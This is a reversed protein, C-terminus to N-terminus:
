IKEAADAAATFKDAYATEAAIIDKRIIDFKDSFKRDLADDSLYRLVCIGSGGCILLLVAICIVAAWIKDCAFLGIAPFLLLVISGFVINAIGIKADEYKSATKSYENDTTKYNDLLSATTEDAREIVDSLLIDTNALYVKNDASNIVVTIDTNEDVTDFEIRTILSNDDTLEAIYDIVRHLYAITGTKILKSDNTIVDKTFVIPIDPTDSTNVVHYGLPSFADDIIKTHLDLIM